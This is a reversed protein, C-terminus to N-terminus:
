QLNLPSDWIRWRPSSEMTLPATAGRAKRPRLPTLDMSARLCNYRAARTGEVGRTRGANWLNTPTALRLAVHTGHMKGHPGRAKCNRCCQTFYILIFRFIAFCFARRQIIAAM